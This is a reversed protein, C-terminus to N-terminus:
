SRWVLGVRPSMGLKEVKDTISKAYRSIKYELILDSAMDTKSLLQLIM